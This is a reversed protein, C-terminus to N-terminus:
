IFNVVFALINRFGAVKIKVQLIKWTSSTYIGYLFM